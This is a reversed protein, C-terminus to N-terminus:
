KSVDGVSRNTVDQFHDILPEFRVDNRLEEGCPHPDYMVERVIVHGELMTVVDSMNPRPALSANTCLLAVKIITEVHEKDCKTGLNQDIIEM